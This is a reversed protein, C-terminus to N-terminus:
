HTVMDLHAVGILAAVIAGGRCNGNLASLEALCRKSMDGSEQFM